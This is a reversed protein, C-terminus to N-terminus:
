KANTLTTKKETVLNESMVMAGVEPCYYKYERSQPNLPTWDYMKVCGSYKSIDTVVTQDVAVVNRTDEATGKYYEQLYSDGVVHNAKIWIGPQAGDVGAIWSGEHDKLLGNEYNDVEEGFYWVNGEKDQALYDKTDEVLEDGLYVKDRYIVTNIGLILKTGAEIELEIREIGDETEALYTLRRGVPLSFYKNTIKTTFNSPIIQEKSAIFFMGSGAVIGLVVVFALIKIQFKM